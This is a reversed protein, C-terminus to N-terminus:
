IIGADKLANRLPERYQEALPTLPLRIGTDILGMEHLAWKVPIPNSECFLINHLNAIKNNITKAQQEDKAIAVACVESMAKPAVNATVSINGDAGLLMLEWATEDDGSYVAMKGNLAEILAKGRPVDGTADKIGVINPIEALRVATDNALDVGTRGPVNYLILPLEVAEAIAKYHQFLGEQTPKNYYPTVLLAADAGLDKAAKTLEIAERTSNAGTGAIIPIRKNAVRIIEKIVQTHEEMSLTSAEGTTGVAVISNTGQEIHWEVLKELGKWDVGGDKLMPTVIAVISGQITQAQQTM